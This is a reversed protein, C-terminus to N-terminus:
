QPTIATPRTYVVQDNVAYAVCRPQGTDLCRKMARETPDKSEMPDKPNRGWTSFWYGSESVVFARPSKQTLWDRYVARGRENIPVADANELASPPVSALQTPSATNPSNAPANLPANIPAVAGTLAASTSPSSKAGAQAVSIVKALEIAALESFKDYLWNMRMSDQGGALGGLAYTANVDFSRLARGQADLVRVRGTVHDDGAMFGLMIAAIASRVRIDTVVIQVQHTSSASILGKAELRRRLFTALEERNFQFNDALQKTADPSMLATVQTVGELRSVDGQVRPDQKITGACGALGLVAAALLGGM